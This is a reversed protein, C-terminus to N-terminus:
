LRCRPPTLVRTKLARVAYSYIRLVRDTVSYQADDMYFNDLVLITGLYARQGHCTDSRAHFLNLRAYMWLHPAASTLLDHTSVAPCQTTVYINCSDM